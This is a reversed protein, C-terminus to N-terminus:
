KVHSLKLFAATRGNSIYTKMMERDPNQVMRLFATPGGLSPLITVDGSYKQKVAQKIDAGYIAPLMRLKALTRLRHLVDASLASELRRFWGFKAAQGSFTFSIHPNVQSVIDQTVHFLESLRKRPIDATFSGDIWQAGESAFPVIQGSSDKALLTTPLMVTPLCCSAHVASRILVHPATLHNLLLAGRRSAEARASGSVNINVIRGTRAFAEEFTVDGYYARTCAAFDANQVLCGTKLYSFIQQKTSPFWREPYRVAIDDKIIEEVMEENTHVALVGAVISGGSTGSVIMPLADNQILVLVVGMHYMALAGGGSLCLATHGLCVSCTKFLDLKAKAPLSPHDCGELYRIAAVQEDILERIATKTGVRCECHLSGADVNLHNRQMVARLIRALGEPDGGKRAERLQRATSVVTAHDYVSSEDSARWAEKGDLQDLESAIAAYTEWSAAGRLARRLRYRRRINGGRLWRLAAEYAGAVRACTNLASTLAVIVLIAAGQYAVYAAQISFLFLTLWIWGIWRGHNYVLSVIIFSLGALQTYSLGASAESASVVVDHMGARSEHVLSGLEGVCVRLASSAYEACVSHNWHGHYEPCVSPSSAWARVLSIISSPM